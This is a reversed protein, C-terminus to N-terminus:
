RVLRIIDVGIGVNWAPFIKIDELPVIIGAGITFHIRKFVKDFGMLFNCGYRGYNRRGEPIIVGDDTITADIEKGYISLTKGYNASLYLGKIYGKVGVTWNNMYEKNTGPSYGGEIAWGYKRGFKVETYFGLIDGCMAGSNVGVVWSIHSIKKELTFRMISSTTKDIHINKKQSIYKSAKVTLEYDTDIRLKLPKGIDWKRENLQIEANKPVVEITVEKIWQDQKKQKNFYFDGSYPQLNPDCEPQQTTNTEIEKQITEWVSRFEEIDYLHASFSETFISLPGKGTSATNGKSTAYYIMSGHPQSLQNSRPKPIRISKKPSIDTKGKENNRCADIFLLSLKCSDEMRARIEEIKIFKSYYNASLLISDKCPILYEEDNITIGHGSYYFIGVDAYPIKEMEQIIKDKSADLLITTEFGLDKLKKKVECADNKPTSLCGFTSSSYDGNGIILAIKKNNALVINPFILSTYIIICYPLYKM